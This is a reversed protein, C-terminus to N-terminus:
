LSSVVTLTGKACILVPAHLPAQSVMILMSMSMAVNVYVLWMLYDEQDWCVLSTVM